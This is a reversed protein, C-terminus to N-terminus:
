GSAVAGRIAEVVGATRAPVAEASVRLVGYGARRLRVDRRADVRARQAHCGGDVEVVLRVSPALFDVIFEGVM